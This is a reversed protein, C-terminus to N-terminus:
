PISPAQISRSVLCPSRGSRTASTPTPASARGPRGRLAHLKGCDATGDAGTNRRGPTPSVFPGRVFGNEAKLSPMRFGPKTVLRDVFGPALFGSFVSTVPSRMILASEAIKSAAQTAAARV